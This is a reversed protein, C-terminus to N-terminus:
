KSHEGTDKSMFVAEGIKLMKIDDPHYYFRREKRASGLGTADMKGTNSGLQYTINLAEETGFIMAWAEANKASNQRLVIYNNCNEIIQEKFAEGAASDLDSLSQTAPICTVNASRSKNLLDVLIPSAYTNIEDLVFFTRGIDPRTYLKSVAKKCDTLVLRGFLPTLEPYILPNLIFLIIAKEEIAQYIDIGSEDHVFLKKGIDSEALNIFRAAASAAIEGCAKIIDATHLHEHKTTLGKKAAEMSLLTLKEPSFNDLIHAFDLPIGLLEM